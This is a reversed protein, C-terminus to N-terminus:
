IWSHLPPQTGNLYYDGVAHYKWRVPDHLTHTRADRWHRDLNFHGLTSRTGGLEFLKNTAAIAIETTLVKAEAVAIKAKGISERTVEAITEDLVRGAREILAEAGHLRIKLDGIAAITYPDDGAKEKGSDIWPRAHHRVFDITADIAGAAIGLDIAAHLLQSQPGVASQNEYVIHAPLVREAPVRVDDLIVTGSATTRQGFASWDNVVTLGDQDRDAVAVVVHGDEALAVIPVLHAFLAGTSYFKRGSVSFSEGSRKLKTEFSEVNKGGFESFANGLRQGSLVASFLAKKQEESGTLRIVDIIEFANQAIQTLSPDASALIAFVKALTVQSVGAGGYAKPITIGWLGSQSYLDVEDYPLRRDRDREAAEAAFLPKLRRAVEIAEADSGIVHAHERPKPRAPAIEGSPAASRTQITM